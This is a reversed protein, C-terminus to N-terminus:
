APPIKEGAEIRVQLYNEVPPMPCTAFDTFACPPNYARNFDLEVIGDEVAETTLYRGSRYTTDGNTQDKFLVWLGAAPDGTAHLVHEVGALTFQIRGTSHVEEIDGLTNVIQLMRPHPEAIYEAQLCYGPDIPYWSRGPFRLLQPQSNDWLRLAFRGAREILMFTLPGFHVTTASDSTDAKLSVQTQDQGEVKVRFPDFISLEVQTGRKHIRGLAQPAFDANLVVESTPDSGIRNDGDILWFLGALALWSDHTRLSEDLMQRFEEVSRTQDSGAM